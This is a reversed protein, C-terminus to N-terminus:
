QQQKDFVQVSTVPSGEANTGKFTNTMRKGKKSLVSRRTGADKGGKMYTTERETSSTRKSTVADFMGNGGDQVQGAGGSVPITYKVSLPSGDAYSGSVTVQYNEGQEDVIVTADKIERPGGSYKSKAPNLKWTGVFPDAAWLLTSAVTLLVVFYISKRIAIVPTQEQCPIIGAEEIGIL